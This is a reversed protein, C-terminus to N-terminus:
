IAQRMARLKENFWVSPHCTAFYKFQFPQGRVDKIAEGVLDRLYPTRDGKICCNIVIDLDTIHLGRLRQKLEEGQSFTKRFVEDRKLRNCNNVKGSLSHAQSCQYQVANMLIVQLTGCDTGTSCRLVKGIYTRIHQGTTGNAPVPTVKGFEDKRRYEDKHPSELVLILKRDSPNPPNGREVFESEDEFKYLETGNRSIDGVYKDECVLAQGKYCDGWIQKAHTEFVSAINQM